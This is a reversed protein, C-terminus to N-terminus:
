TGRWRNWSEAGGERGPTRHNGNGRKTPVVLHESERGSIRSHETEKAWCYWGVRRRENRGESGVGTPPGPAVPVPRGTALPCTSAVPGGLNRPFGSTGISHEEVGAPGVVGPRNCRTPTAGTADM